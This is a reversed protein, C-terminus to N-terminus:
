KELDMISFRKQDSDGDESNLIKFLASGGFVCYLGLALNILMLLTMQALVGTSRSLLPANEIVFVYSSALTAVGSIAQWLLLLGALRILLWAVEKKTM